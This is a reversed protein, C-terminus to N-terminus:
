FAKTWLCKYTQYFLFPFSSLPLWPAPSPPLLWSWVTEWSPTILFAATRGLLLLSLSQYTGEWNRGRWFHFWPERGDIKGGPWPCPQQPGLHFISLGHLHDWPKGWAASFVGEVKLLKGIRGVGLLIYLNTFHIINQKVRHDLNWACDRPWQTEGEHPSSICIFLVPSKTKRLFFLSFLSIFNSPSFLLSFLVLPLYRLEKYFPSLKHFIEWLPKWRRPSLLDM